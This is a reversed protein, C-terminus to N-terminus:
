HFPQINWTRTSNVTSQVQWVFNVACVYSICLSRVLSYTTLVASLPLTDNRARPRWFAHLSSVGKRIGEFRKLATIATPRKAPEKVTMEEVLPALIGLNTYKDLVEKRFMNGLIFIDVMFPDYPVTDSLEPVDQDLRASGLVPARQEGPAYQTSIGFDVYYYKLPTSRRSLVPAPKKPEHPIGYHAMAHHGLPFLPSADVMVNKYACDRHAIGHDHMFVLGELLQECCDLVNELSEFPPDDINRLFPMVLFSVTDDEPDCLVDLVPVTHNRPDQCLERSNLYTAIALETSNSHIRKILVLSDDSTRRADMLHPRLAHTTHRDEAFFIDISPDRQWSPVWGPRYRPRLMYGHEAFFPQHDRWWCEVPTLLAFLESRSLEGLNRYQDTLSLM